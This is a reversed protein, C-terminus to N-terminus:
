TRVGVVTGKAHGGVRVGGGRAASSAFASCDLTEAHRVLVFSAREAATLSATAATSLLESIGESTGDLSTNESLVRGSRSDRM